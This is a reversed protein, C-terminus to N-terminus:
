AKGGTGGDGDSAYSRGCVDQVDFHGAAVASTLKPLGFPLISPLAWMIM